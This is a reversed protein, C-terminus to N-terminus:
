KLIDKIPGLYVAGHLHTGQLGFGRYVPTLITFSTIGVLKGRRDLVPGGSNGGIIGADHQFWEGGFLGGKRRPHSVVGRTISYNYSGMAHGIAWVEEAFNPAFRAVRVTHKMKHEIPVLLALDNTVDFTDVWLLILEGHVNKAWIDLDKVCHYATLVKDKDVAVASCYTNGEIDVLELTAHFARRIRGHPRELATASCTTLLLILLAIYKM